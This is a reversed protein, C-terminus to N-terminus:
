QFDPLNRCGLVQVLKSELTPYQLTLQLRQNLNSIPLAILNLMPTIQINPATPHVV